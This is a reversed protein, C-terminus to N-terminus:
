NSFSNGIIPIPETGIDVPVILPYNDIKTAGIVYPSDGVGDHNTDTGDYDAWYNGRMGSNWVNASNTNVTHNWNFDLFNNHYIYNTGVM